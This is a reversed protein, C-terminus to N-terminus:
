SLVGGGKKTGYGPLRWGEGPLLNDILPDLQHLSSIGFLRDSILPPPCPICLEGAGVDSQTCFNSM